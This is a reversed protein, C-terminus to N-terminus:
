NTTEVPSFLFYKFGGGLNANGEAENEDLQFIKMSMEVEWREIGLRKTDLGVQLNESIGPPYATFIKRWFFHFVAPFGSGRELDNRSGFRPRTLKTLSSPGLPRALCAM